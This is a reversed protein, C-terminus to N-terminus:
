ATGDVKPQEGTERERLRELERDLVADIAADVEDDKRARRQNAAQVTMMRGISELAAAIRPIAAIASLIQM